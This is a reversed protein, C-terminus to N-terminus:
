IRSPDIRQLSRVNKVVDDLHPLGSCGRPSVITSGVSSGSYTPPPITVPPKAQISIPACLHKVRSSLPALGERKKQLSLVHVDSAALTAARTFQRRPAVLAKCARPIARNGLLVSVFLFGGVFSPLFSTEGIFWM